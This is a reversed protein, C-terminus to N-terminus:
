RAQTRKVAADIFAARDGREWAATIEDEPIGAVRGLLLFPEYGRSSKWRSMEILSTLATQRLESLVSPDRQATLNSLAWSSKNRDTWDISNLM